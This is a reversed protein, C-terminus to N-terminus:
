TNNETGSSNKRRKQILYYALGGLVLVIILGDVVGVVILVWKKVSPKSHSDHIGKPVKVMYSLGTGREVQKTGAVLRYLFCEQSKEAGDESSHLAAVCKCDDLCLNACATKSVNVRRPDDRLVSGVGNLELMEVKAGGCFKTPTGENCDSSMGNQKTLLRICSCANSFTCIGYPKCALPLDCTSNLAQFSAEFKETNPSYFYLGLNGTKNGLALFRLPQIRWSAIQAIKKHKDNFLALGKSGLEVFTINRNKSPKFEWYSYKLKGSNLYLAIKNHLIEFTYYSTSNRPFSSLRTAVDLRQGWLMVDTPFNFSQWKIQNLVDVLVLNGTRLIQLREVGQGSTGTRWGVREKPGKLKVDGLFVELSCSYKGKIAEASLAVKFNPELQNADMLFARGIFGASYESPVALSIRHGVHIASDCSGYNVLLILISCLYLKM